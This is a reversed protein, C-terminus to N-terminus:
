LTRSIVLQENENRDTALLPPRIDKIRKEAAAQPSLKEPSDSQSKIYGVNMGLEDLLKTLPEGARGMGYNYAATTLVYARLNEVSESITEEM